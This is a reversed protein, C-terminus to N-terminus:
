LLVNYKTDAASTALNSAQTSPRM